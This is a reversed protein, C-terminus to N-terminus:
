GKKALGQTLYKYYKKLKGYTAFIYIGAHIGVISVIKKMRLSKKSAAYQLLDQHTLLIQKAQKRDRSVISSFSYAASVYLNALLARMAQYNVAQNMIQRGWYEFLQNYSLLHRISYSTSVSGQRRHCGYMVINVASVSQVKQWIQCSFHTDEGNLIGEPFRINNSDHISKKVIQLCASLSLQETYVLKEFIEQPSHTEFYEIDYKRSYHKHRPYIDVRGFLLMDSHSKKLLQMMQEIGDDILWEDDSDLFVVYDGKAIEIGANRATSSGGNPKHVVKIPIISHHLSASAYEDCIAGSEDTSGDDVLIIEMDRYTQRLVSDVCRRLYPAVNYVPIIVSLLM